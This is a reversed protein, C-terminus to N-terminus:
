NTTDGSLATWLAPTFRPDFGADPGMLNAQFPEMAAAAAVTGATAMRGKATLEEPSPQTKRKRPM